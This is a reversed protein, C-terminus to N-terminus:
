KAGLGRWEIESLFYACFVLNSRSTEAIDAELRKFKDTEDQLAASELLVMFGQAVETCSRTAFEGWPEGAKREQSDANLWYLEFIEGGPRLFQFQGGLCAYELGPAEAVVSPFVDVPWAFQKGNQIAGRALEPPLDDVDPPGMYM